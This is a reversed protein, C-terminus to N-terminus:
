WLRYICASCVYVPLIFLLCSSLLSRTICGIGAHRCQLHLPCLTPAGTVSALTSASSAALLYSPIHTPQSHSVSQAGPSQIFSIPICWPHSARNCHSAARRPAIHESANAREFCGFWAAGEVYAHNLIFMM